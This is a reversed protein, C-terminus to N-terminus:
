KPMDDKYFKLSILFYINCRCVQAFLPYRGEFVIRAMGRGLSSGDGGGDFLIFMYCVNYETAVLM